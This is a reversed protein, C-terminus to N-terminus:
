FFGGWVFRTGLVPSYRASSIIAAPDFPGIAQMGAYFAVQFWPVFAFGAEANAELMYGVGVSSDVVAPNVWGIGSWLNLSLTVPGTRVQNGSIFGGFAAITEETDTDNIALGFGGYRSGRREAGYGYGGVIEAERGINSYSPVYFYNGRFFGGGGDAFATAAVLVMTILVIARKM